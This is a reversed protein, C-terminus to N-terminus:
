IPDIQLKSFLSLGLTSTKQSGLHRHKVLHCLSSGITFGLHKERM